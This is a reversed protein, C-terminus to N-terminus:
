WPVPNTPSVFLWKIFTYMLSFSVGAACSFCANNAAISCLVVFHFCTYAAYKLFKVFRILNSPVPFNDSYSWGAFILSCQLGNKIM